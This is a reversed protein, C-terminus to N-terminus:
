ALRYNEKDAAILPVIMLEIEEAGVIKTSRPERIGFTGVQLPTHREIECFVMEKHIIRPLCVRKGCDFAYAILADTNVEEPLSAYVAIVNASRFCSTNKLKSLIMESKKAKASICRRVSRYQKRLEEKEMNYNYYLVM